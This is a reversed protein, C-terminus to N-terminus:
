NIQLDTAFNGDSTAGPEAPAPLAIWHPRLSFQTSPIEYAKFYMLGALSNAHTYTNSHLFSNIQHARSAPTLTRAFVASVGIVSLLLQRSSCDAKKGPAGDSFASTHGNKRPRRMEDLKIKVAELLAEGQKIQHRLRFILADIRSLAPPLPRCSDAVSAVANVCKSAIQQAKCESGNVGDDDDNNSNNNYAISLTVPVSSALVRPYTSTDMDYIRECLDLVSKEAKNARAELFELRNEYSEELKDYAFKTYYNVIGSAASVGACALSIPPLFCTGLAGTLGSAAVATASRQVFKCREHNRLVRTRMEEM